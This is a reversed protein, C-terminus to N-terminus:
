KKYVPSFTVFVGNHDTETMDFVRYSNIGVATNYNCFIYDVRTMFLSTAKVSGCVCPKPAIWACDAWGAESVAKM